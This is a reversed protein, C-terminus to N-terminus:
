RWSSELGTVLALIARNLPAPVGLSDARRAVAGNIADVETRRRHRVDELMSPRAVPVEGRIMREQDAAIMALIGETDVTAGAARAVAASERVLAICLEGPATGPALGDMALGTLAAVGNMASNVVVKSWIASDVDPLLEAAMGAEELLDVIRRAATQDGTRSLPGLRTPGHVTQQVRGPELMTAGQYTLGVVFRDAPVIAGLSDAHGMGNQVTVVVTHPGVLHATDRAAQANHVAKVFFLLADPRDAISAADTVAGVRSVVTTGDARLLTIGTDRIAGVVTESADLVTVENGAEALYSAYTSGMAGSGVIVIRAM